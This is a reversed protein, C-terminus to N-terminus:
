NNFDKLSSKLKGLPKKHLAENKNTDSLDIFKEIRVSKSINTSSVQSSAKPFYPKYIVRCSVLYNANITTTNKSHGKHYFYKM